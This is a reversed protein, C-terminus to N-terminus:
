GRDLQARDYSVLGLMRAARMSLVASDLGIPRQFARVARRTAPSLVGDIPGDYHGRAALARQLTAVVEPTLDDACPAEFWLEEREQVIRPVREVRYIAPARLNGQADLEPPQVLTRETVTEIVAPTHDHGWCSGPEAGPPGDAHSRPLAPLARAADVGPLPQCASVLAVLPALLVAPRIM